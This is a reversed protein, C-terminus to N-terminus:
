YAESVSWDYDLSTVDNLSSFEAVLQRTEAGLSLLQSKRYFQFTDFINQYQNLFQLFKFFQM